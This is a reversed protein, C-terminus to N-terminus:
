GAGADAKHSVASQGAAVRAVARCTARRPCEDCRSWQAPPLGIGVGLVMSTSKHPHMLLGAGVTVGITEAQALRLVAPQAELALGPDGARLEGAMTLGRRTVDAHIRDQARRSVAFLLENALEDIAMALSARREVFLARVRQEVRPGLTCVACALATLQGSPPLLRPAHLTERGVQLTASAPADLAVICYCYAPDLLAEDRVLQLANARLRQRASSPRRAGRLAPAEAAERLVDFGRAVRM